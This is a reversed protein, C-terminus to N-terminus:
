GNGPPLRRARVQFGLSYAKHADLGDLFHFLLPLIL